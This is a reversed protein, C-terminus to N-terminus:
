CCIYKVGQQPEPRLIYTVLVRVQLEDVAQVPQWTSQGDLKPFCLETAVNVLTNTIEDGRTPNFQNSSPGTDIITRRWSKPAYNSGNLPLHCFDVINCDGENGDIM